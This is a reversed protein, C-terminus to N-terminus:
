FRASFQIALLSNWSGSDADQREVSYQVKVQTHPTMRYGPGLDVRWVDRSWPASRGDAMALSSFLQQNWRLACFFQPTFKYKAEIYYAQTDANGVGPIEFRAEYVEAWLQAHHWAFSADQGLVVERYQDLTRGPSLTAGAGPQLYTGASASFGFNWMESPMYGVRGSFTPNQWQTRTPSWAAPRSSLAANKMEVAYEFRGVQGFASAGSAYSPGWIVPVNRYQDPFFGGHVPSPRVGGWFMLEQVSRAGNTDWIATLNEYPLPATIFPNDWSGHRLTWNGVVTAFKGVQLNLRGDGWPTLRLVYEDPRVIPGGEGPDFGDDARVQAFAYVYPGVQADLFLSLRPNLFTNKDEFILGPETRTVHYGELDLDGSLRLRVQDNWGGFSLQEDIRDLADDQGFAAGAALCFVGFLLARPLALAASAAPTSV